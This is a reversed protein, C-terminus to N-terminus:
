GLRRLRHTKAVCMDFVLPENNPAAAEDWPLVSLIRFLTFRRDVSSWDVGTDLAQKYPGEDTISSDDRVDVDATLCTSIELATACLREVQIPIRTIVDARAAAVSPRSCEIAILVYYPDESGRGRLACAM